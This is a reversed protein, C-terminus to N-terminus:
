KNNLMMNQMGKMLEMPNTTDSTDMNQACQQALSEISAMMNDPIMTLTSGFVYLTNMHSWIADKTSDSIGSEWLEKLKLKKILEVDLDFVAENKNVIYESVPKIESMFNDLIMRPNTSKLTEFHTKYVKISSNEPFTCELETLFQEMLMLFSSLSSM